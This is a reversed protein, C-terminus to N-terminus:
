GASAQGAGPCGRRGRRHIVQPTDPPSAARRPPCSPTLQPHSTSPWLIKFNSGSVGQATGGVPTSIRRGGPRHGAFPSVGLWRHPPFGSGGPLPFSRAEALLPGASGALLFSRALPAPSVGSWGTDRSVKPGRAEPFAQHWGAFPSVRSPSGRLWGAFPLSKLSHRLPLGSDRASFFARLRDAFPFSSGKPKPSVGTLQHFFARLWGTLSIGPALPSPPFGPKNAFPLARAAARPGRAVRHDPRSRFVPLTGPGPLYDLPAISASFDAPRHRSVPRPGEMEYM